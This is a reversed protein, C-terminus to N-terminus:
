LNSVMRGESSAYPRFFLKFPPYFILLLVVVIVALLIIGAIVSVLIIWWTNCGSSSVTFLASLTNGGEGVFPQAKVKKCGGGKVNANISVSSLSGCVSGNTSSGQTLLLQSSKSKRIKEVDSSDLSVQITSLNTVCGNVEINSNIDNLLISASTLNGTIVVVGAGKPINLSPANTFPATWRGAICTFDTNPRTNEPCSSSVPVPVPAPVSTPPNTTMVPAPTPALPTTTPVEVPVIPPDEPPMIPEVYGACAATSCTDYLDPCDCAPSYSVDCTSGSQYSTIAESSAASCLSLRTFSIDLRTLSSGNVAPLDGSISTYSARFTEVSSPTSLLSSPISGTLGVNHDLIISRIDSCSGWESPISGRLENRELNIYYPHPSFCSAPPRGSLSNNPASIYISGTGTASPTIFNDPISGTLQNNDVYFYTLTDSNSPVGIHAYKFLDAPITGDLQNSQLYIQLQWSVTLAFLQMMRSDREVSLLDGDGLIATSEERKRNVNSMTWLLTEPISGTLQNYALNITLGDVSANSALGGTILGAPISGDIKNYSADFYFYRSAGIPIITDPLPGTLQNGTLVLNTQYQTTCNMFIGQPIAGTLSNNAFNLFFTSQSISEPVFGYPISGHIDNFDLRLSFGNPRLNVMPYLLKPPLEGDLQNYNFEVVFDFNFGFSSSEFPTFLNPPISGTLAGNSVIVEVKAIPIVTAIDNFLTSPISGSLPEYSLKFAYIRSPLVTPMSGILGPFSNESEFYGVQPFLDWIENWAVTGDNNFGDLTNGMPTTSVPASSPASAPPATNTPSIYYCGSCSFRKPTAPLRNLFVIVNVFRLETVNYAATRVCDPVEVVRAVNPAVISLSYVSVNLQPCILAATSATTAADPLWFELEYQEMIEREGHSLLRKVM